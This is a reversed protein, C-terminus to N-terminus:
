NPNTFDFGPGPKVLRTGDGNFVTMYQTGRTQGQIVWDFAGMASFIRQSLGYNLTYPSTRPLWNGGLDVSANGSGFNLRSDNVITGDSFRADMLLVHLQAELGAPLQYATDLDLGFVDTRKKANQRVASTPPM